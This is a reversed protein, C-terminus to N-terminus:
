LWEDINQERHHLRVCVTPYHKKIYAATHEACYVSRHQGGTCGFGISLNTFGRQLYKEVTMDVLGYVNKLYSQVEGREELFNIVSVNRGTLYKYEAYRGPNHLGRCDFIFGGGNGAEEHPYGRRYSFSEVTVTLTMTTDEM